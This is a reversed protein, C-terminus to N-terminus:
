FPRGARFVDQEVFKLIATATAAEQDARQQEKEARDKAAVAAQRQDEEAQRAQEKADREEVAQLRAREAGDRQRRAEVLGWATGAIGGLLTLLVVAAASVPGKYRRLLKKMRYATSPPCAEVPEDAMYRQVDQAFASATSYRRNRDKELARM